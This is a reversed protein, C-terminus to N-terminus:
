GLAPVLEALLGRLDGCEESSALSTRAYGLTRPVYALYTPNARVSAQYGFTGLAKLTRQVAMRDLRRRFERRAGAEVNPSEPSARREMFWTTLSEVEDASVDVYADWLLSALDYTDPGMRADQFDIVRLRGPQVMLNRSHFDRHCLVRPEAALARALTGYEARLAQRRAPSLSLGLHGELFHVTFFALERAFTEEDFAPGFPPLSSAPVRGRQLTLIIDVSERYCATREVTTADELHSQLSVNGLDELVLIDLADARAIVQPVPVTMAELVEAVRAFTAVAGGGTKPYLALIRPSLGSVTLRFYRRNSADGSLPTIRAGRAALGSTELFRNLRSSDDNPPANTM